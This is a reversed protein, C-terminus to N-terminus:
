IVGKKKRIIAVKGNMMYKASLNFRKISRFVQGEYREHNVDDLILYGNSTLMDLVIPLSKIRKSIAYDELIIDYKKKDHNFMLFDEWNYVDETKLECYRLFEVTKNVWKEVSDVSIIRVPRWSELAYKRFVFSSFGTGRDLILNPKIKWCLDLLYKSLELSIPYNGPSINKRYYNYMEELDLKYM